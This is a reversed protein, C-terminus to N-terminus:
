DYLIVRGHRTVGFNKMFFFFLLDRSLNQTPSIATDFQRTDRRREADTDASASRLFLEAAHMSAAEIYM